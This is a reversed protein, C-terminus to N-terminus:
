ESFTAFTKGDFRSLGFGRTGFWMNGSKDEFVSLVSNCVLGDKTTYNKFSTGDYCWVGNDETALWITGKKDEVISYIGRSVFGEKERFSTFKKGDFRCAGHRRTAFWINGAKDETISFIMDDTISDTPQSNTLNPYITTKIKQTMSRGDENQLYYEASPLYNKFTKGDYKWVGGGNWSSFWVNGKKDQKIDLILQYKNNLNYKQDKSNLYNTFTKGDYRYVGEGWVGFWLSGDSDECLSSIRKKSADNNGTYHAFSKGNYMCIGSHTGIVINGAKDEIIKGVRNDILGDKTTFNTFTKGDYRYVGEGEVSFWINGAKDQLECGINGSEMGQTRIIKSQVVPITKQVGVGDKPSTTKVQGTCSNALVVSVLVLYYQFRYHKM